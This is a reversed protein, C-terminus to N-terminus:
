TSHQCRNHKCDTIATECGVARCAAPSALTATRWMVGHWLFPLRQTDSQLRLACSPAAHVALHNVQIIRVLTVCLFYSLNAFTLFGLSFLSSTHGQPNPSLIMKFHVRPPTFHRNVRELGTIGHPTM